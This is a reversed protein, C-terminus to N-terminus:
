SSIFATQASISMNTMRRRKGILAIILEKRDDVNYYFGDFYVLM